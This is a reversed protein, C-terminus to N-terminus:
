SVLNIILSFSFNTFDMNLSLKLALVNLLPYYLENGFRLKERKLTPCAIRQRKIKSPVWLVAAEDEGRM